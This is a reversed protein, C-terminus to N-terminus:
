RKKLDAVIRATRRICTVIMGVVMIILAAAITKGEFGLYSEFV